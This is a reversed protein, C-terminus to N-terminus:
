HQEDLYLLAHARVTRLATAALEPAALLPLSTM